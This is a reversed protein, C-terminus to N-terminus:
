HWRKNHDNLGRLKVMRGCYRCRVKVGKPPHNPWWPAPHVQRMHSAICSADIEEGCKLCKVSKSKSCPRCGHSEPAHEDYYEGCATCARHMPGRVKTIAKAKAIQKTIDAFESPESGHQSVLNKRRCKDWDIREPMLSKTKDADEAKHDPPELAM